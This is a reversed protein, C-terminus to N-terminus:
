KVLNNLKKLDLIFNLEPHEERGAISVAVEGKSYLSVIDEHCSRYRKVQMNFNTEPLYKSNLYGLRKKKAYAEWAPYLKTATYYHKNGFYYYLEAEMKEKAAIKQEPTQQELPIYEPAKLNTNEKPPSTKNNLKPKQVETSFSKFINGSLNKYQAFQKSGIFMSLLNNKSVQIQKTFQKYMAM